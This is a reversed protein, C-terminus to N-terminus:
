QILSVLTQFILFLILLTRGQELTNFFTENLDCGMGQLFPIFTGELRAGIRESKVYM